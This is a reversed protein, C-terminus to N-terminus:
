EGDRWWGIKLHGVLRGVVTVPVAVIVELNQDWGCSVKIFAHVHIGIIVVILEAAEEEVKGARRVAAVLLHRRFFLTVFADLPAVGTAAAGVANAAVLKRAVVSAVVFAEIASSAGGSRGRKFAFTINAVVVTAAALVVKGAAFSSIPFAGESGGQTIALKIVIFVNDVLAAAALVTKGTAATFVSDTESQMGLYTSTPM